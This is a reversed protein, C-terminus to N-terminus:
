DATPPFRNNLEEEATQKVVRYPKSITRCLPPAPDLSAAHPRCHADTINAQYSVGSHNFQIKAKHGDAQVDLVAAPRWQDQNSIQIDIKKGTEFSVPQDHKAMPSTIFPRLRRDGITFPYRKSGSDVVITADQSGVITGAIWQTEDLQFEVRQGMSYTAYLQELKTPAVVRTTPVAAVPTAIRQLPPPQPPGTSVTSGTSVNRALTPQAALSPAFPNTPAYSSGSATPNYFNGSLGSNAPPHFNGSATPNFSNGSAVPNFPYGSATGRSATAPPYFNGSATPNSFNGIGGLTAM